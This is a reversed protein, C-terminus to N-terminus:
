QRSTEARALLVEHIMIVQLYIEVGPDVENNSLISRALRRDNVGDLDHESRHARVCM